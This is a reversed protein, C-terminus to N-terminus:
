QAATFETNGKEIRWWSVSRGRVIEREITKWPISKKVARTPDIAERGDARDTYGMEEATIWYGYSYGIKVGKTLSTGVSTYEFGKPACLEILTPLINIHSGAADKPFLNKTVGKGTVILPVAYRQYLRPTAELNMRDAHDGVVMILTDPFRKQVDKIFQAMYKDAYWYHGLSKTLTWDDKQKDTLNKHVVDEPYGEGDLWVSFPSHNSTTMVTYFGSEEKELARLVEAFLHKDDCGWVNGTVNGYDSQGYFKEYGQSLTFDRVAEWSPPGGYFFVPRYGLRAMQPAISTSYVEKYTQPLYNMYLNVDSFGTLCGMIGAITCYGNPLMRDLYATNPQAIISKMGDGIHLDKYQQELPWNAYSEAIILIVHKPRSAGSATKVLCDDLHRPDAVTGDSLSLAHARLEDESINMGSSWELREQCVYARYLAQGDDLIAENLLQDNTIGANEWNFYDLYSMGGCNGCFVSIHYILAIIAVKASFNGIRSGMDPLPIVKKKLLKILCVIAIYSLVIAAGVLLVLNYQEHITATLASTDDRLTNFILQNFGMKFQAYYPMRAVFLVSLLVAYVSGIVMRLRNAGKEWVLSLATCAIFSIGALYGTTQYSLLWGKAFATWVDAWTTADEWYAEMIIIFAIRYVAILVMLYLLLKVDQFLNDYIRKWVTNLVDSVRNMNVSFVEWFSYM